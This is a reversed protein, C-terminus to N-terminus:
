VDSYSYDYFYELDPVDPLHKSNPLIFEEAKKDFLQKIHDNDKPIWKEYFGIEALYGGYTRSRDGYRALDQTTGEDFNFDYPFHFKLRQIKNWWMDFNIMKKVMATIQRKTLQEILDFASNIIKLKDEVNEFLFCETYGFFKIQQHSPKPTLNIKNASFYFLKDKWYKYFLHFYIFGELDAPHVKQYLDTLDRDIFITKYPNPFDKKAQSSYGFYGRTKAKTKSLGIKFFSQPPYDYALTKHLSLDKKYEINTLRKQEEYDKKKMKKYPIAKIKKLEESDKWKTYGYFDFGRETGWKYFKTKHYYDGIENWKRNNEPDSFSPSHDKKRISQDFKNFTTKSDLHIPSKEFKIPDPRYEVAYFRVKGKPKKNAGFNRIQYHQKFGGNFPLYNSLAHEKIAELGEEPLDYYGM